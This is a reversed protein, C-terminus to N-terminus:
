RPDILFNRSTSSTAAATDAAKPWFEVWFLPLGSSLEPTDFGGGASVTSWAAGSCGASCGASAGAAGCLAAGGAGLVGGAVLAGGAAVGAGAVEAGGDELVPAAPLADVVAPAALECSVSLEDAPSCSSGPLTPSRTCAAAV